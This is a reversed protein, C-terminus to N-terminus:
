RINKRPFVFTSAHIVWDYVKYRLSQPLIKLVVTNDILSQWVKWSFPFYFLKAIVNARQIRQNKREPHLAKLEEHAVRYQNLRRIYSSCSIADRHTARNLKDFYLPFGAELARYALDYDEGDKVREDFGNLKIFDDRHISCNAATFFLNSFDIRNLGESYKDTWKVTLFAKYNQIDTKAVDIPEISNGCYLSHPHNAHFWIHREIVDPNLTMDDDFFIIVDGQSQRFGANRVKARGSNKQNIIKLDKLLGQFKALVSLTNDTSGDIVVLTEFDRVTQALLSDLLLPVKSAGNYTPIIVSATLKKQSTDM